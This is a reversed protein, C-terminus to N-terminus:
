RKAFRGSIADRILFIAGLFRRFRRGEEEQYPPFAYLEGQRGRAKKNYNILASYTKKAFIGASPNLM